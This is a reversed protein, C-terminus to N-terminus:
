FKLLNFTFYSGFDLSYSMFAWNELTWRCKIMQIFVMCPLNRLHPGREQHAHICISTLVFLVKLMKQAVVCLLFQLFTWPVHHLQAQFHDISHVLISTTLTCSEVSSALSTCVASTWDVLSYARNAKGFILDWILLVHIFKNWKEELYCSYTWNMRSCQMHQYCLM